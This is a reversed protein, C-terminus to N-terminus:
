ICLDILRSPRKKELSLSLYPLSLSVVCVSHGNLTKIQKLEILAASMWRGGSSILWISRRLLSFYKVLDYHTVLRPVVCKEPRWSLKHQVLINDAPSHPAAPRHTPTLCPTHVQRSKLPVIFPVVVTVVCELVKKFDISKWRPTLQFQKVTRKAGSLIIKIPIRICLGFNM